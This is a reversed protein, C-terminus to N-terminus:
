SERKNNMLMELANDLSGAPVVQGSNVFFIEDANEITNLRHAIIVKSTEKPLKELIEELLKETVTDINATAEDLILLEPRRLVARIFAILQRQGLSITEGSNSVLTKLGNEFRSLLKGLGEQKLLEELEKISYKELKENGYTINEAVTGSFLYPEQLIFGIKQSLDKPDFNRIDTGHLLVKGKKPDFLRAMLSATTTKGGGTPGVMAYTKGKDLKFDIKQLIKKDKSYHFDVNKFELVEKSNELKKNVKNIELNSKLSLIESIRDWSGLAAQFSAWLHAIQRIPDYFRNLYGLYSILLGVTLNGISILYIGYFLVVIQAAYSGFTYVPAFVNNLLGAGLANKYNIKNVEEFREQFYDQRNYAAVVKFNELSEAIEASMGGISQLSKTNRNRVIPSILKTFILIGLAPVLAALGLRWDLSIIFIATGTMLFINAVFQVLAQSFFQNLNETDNNIRSILDGSKNQGFFEMPLEQVKKFIANRLNFLLNQGVKGMNKTQAYTAALIVLYMGFLILSNILIGQYQKTAIYNDITKGIIFPTMLNMGSNVLLATLAAILHKKEGSLLPIFKKVM